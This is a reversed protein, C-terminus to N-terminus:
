PETACDLRALRRLEWPHKLGIDWGGSDDPPSGIALISSTGGDLLASSIRWRDRLLEATRDLAYGKGISGLNIEVGERDFRASHRESDLAIHQMGVVSM